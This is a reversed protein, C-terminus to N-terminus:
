HDSLSRMRRFTLDTRGLLVLKESSKPKISNMIDTRMRLHEPTTPKLDVLLYGYPKSTAEKFHKLLHQSNEPYMQRSLTMIQQKDVPNNFLVMYHCNRRQTPDKNYYLNQNIAIVSLNRHHSGETFLENIRSDKSATSMLDDLIVNRTRPHIFSDQDLDLPIGQIFEVSPYVTSKIVDYLPHWRKYLWLIREPPPWIMTLCHQLLVKCFHTKGCSTPGSITSYLSTQFCLGGANATISAAATYAAAAAHDAAAHDAAAAATIIGTATTTLVKAAAAATHVGAAAADETTADTHITDGGGRATPKRERTCQTSTTKLRRKPFVM